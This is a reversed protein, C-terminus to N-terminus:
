VIMDVSVVSRVPKRTWMSCCASRRSFFPQEDFQEHNTHRMACRRNQPHEPETSVRTRFLNASFFICIRPTSNGRVSEAWLAFMREQMGDYFSKIEKVAEPILPGFRVCVLLCAMLEISTFITRM